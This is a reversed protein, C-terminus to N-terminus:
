SRILKERMNAKEFRMEFFQGMDISARDFCALEMGRFNHSATAWDTWSEAINADFNQGKTPWFMIRIPINLLEAFRAFVVNTEPNCIVYVTEDLWAYQLPYKLPARKTFEMSLQEYTLNSKLGRPREVQLYEVLFKKTDAVGRFDAKIVSDALNPDQICRKMLLFEFISKHAFVLKDRSNRIFLSKGSIQEGTLKHIDIKSNAALDKIESEEIEFGLSDLSRWWLISAMEESFGALRLDYGEKQDSDAIKGMERKTWFTVMEVYIEVSREYTRDDQVLADVNALLMPRNMLYRARKVIRQARKRRKRDTIRFYPFRYNIYKEIDEEGFPSVYLKEPVIPGYLGYVDPVMDQVSKTSPFFQTRCTIIVQHFQDAEKLIDALELYYNGTVMEDLGDLLLVTNKRKDVDMLKITERYRPNNLPVIQTIPDGEEHIESYRNHLELLFMTKGIGSEGLLIYCVATRGEKLQEIFTAIGDKSFATRYSESQDESPPHLQVRTTIYYKEAERIKEIPFIHILDKRLTIQRRKRRWAVFFKWLGAPLVIVTAIWPLTDKVIGYWTFDDDSKDDSTRQRGEPMPVLNQVQVWGNSNGFRAVRWLGEPTEVKNDYLEVVDKQNPLLFVEDSMTSPASMGRIKRKFGPTSTYMGMSSYGESEPAPMIAMGVEEKESSSTDVGRCSGYMLLLTCITVPWLLWNHLGIVYSWRQWAKHIVMGGWSYIHDAISRTRATSRHPKFKNNTYEKRVRDQEIQYTHTDEFVWHIAIKADKATMMARSHTFVEVRLHHNM